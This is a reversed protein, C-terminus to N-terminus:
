DTLLPYFGMEEEVMSFFGMCDNVITEDLTADGASLASKFAQRGIRMHMRQIGLKKHRQGLTQVFDRLKESNRRENLVLKLAIEFMTKQSEMNRFKTQMGPIEEFIVNYFEATAAAFDFNEFNM